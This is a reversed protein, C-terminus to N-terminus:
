YTDVDLSCIAWNDINFVDVNEVANIDKTGFNYNKRRKIFNSAIVSCYPHGKTMRFTIIDTKEKQKLISILKILSLKKDNLLRLDGIFTDKVKKGRLVMKYVIFGYRDDIVVKYNKDPKSL